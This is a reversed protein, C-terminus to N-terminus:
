FSPSCGAMTDSTEDLYPRQVPVDPVTEAFVVDSCCRLKIVVSRRIKYNGSNGNLLISYLHIIKNIERMLITLQRLLGEM